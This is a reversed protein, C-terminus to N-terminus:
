NNPKEKTRKQTRKYAERHNEGRGKETRRGKKRPGQGSNKRPNSENEQLKQNKGWARYGVKGKVRKPEKNTCAPGETRKGGEEVWCTEM